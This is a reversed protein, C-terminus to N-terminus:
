NNKSETRLYRPAYKTRYVQLAYNVSIAASCVIVLLFVIKLFRKM